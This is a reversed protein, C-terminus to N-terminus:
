PPVLAISDAFAPSENGAADRFQVFVTAIRGIRRLLWQRHESFPEWIAGKQQGPNWLRMETVGSPASEDDYFEFYADVSDAADPRDGAHLTLQARRKSTVPRDGNIAISGVPWYPDVAPTVCDPESPASTASTGQRISVRYCYLQDNQLPEDLYPGTSRLTAVVGYPGDVRTAREILATENRDLGNFTVWAKAVGPWARSRPRESRDDGPDRPDLGATRESCDNQGGDDTDPDLPHTGSM